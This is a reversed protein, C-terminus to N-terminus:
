VPFKFVHRNFSETLVYAKKKQVSMLSTVVYARLDSVSQELDTMDMIAGDDKYFVIVFDKEICISFEGYLRRKENKTISLMGLEEILLMLKMKTSSCVGEKICFDGVQNRFNLLSEPTLWFGRVFYNKCDFEDLLLPFSDMGYILSFVGVLFAFVFYSSFMLGFWVGTIGMWYCGLMWFVCPGVLVNMFVIMLSFFPHEHLHYNAYVKMFSFGFTAFALVRVARISENVLSPTEVHYLYVVYPAFLCLVACFIVSEVLLTFNVNKMMQSISEACNEARYINVLPEAAQWVGGFVISLEIIDSVISLPVLSSMGFKVVFFDYLLLFLMALLLYDCVEVACYRVVLLCDKWRLHCVFCLSNTKKLFHFMLVAISLLTAAVTGLAVGSMGFKLCFLGSFFFNGVLLTWVSIRTIRVDGDVYVMEKLVMNLPTFLAILPFWKSFQVVYERVGSSSAVFSAGNLCLCLSVFFLVIGSLVALIVSQGFFESAKEKKLCGINIAYCVSSGVGIGVGVFFVLSSFPTFLTIAALANEGFIWGAVVKDILITAFPALVSVSAAFLMQRFKRGGFCDWFKM